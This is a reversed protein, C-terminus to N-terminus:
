RLLRTQGEDQVWIFAKKQLESVSITEMKVKIHEIHTSVTSPRIKLIKAIERSTKGKGLLSFVSIERRSLLDEPATSGTDPPVQTYLLRESISPALYLIGKAVVRIADILSESTDSKPLFGKAGLEMSRRVISINESASLILVRINELQARHTELFELGSWRSDMSIDLILLDPSLEELLHDLDSLSGTEGVIELTEEGQIQLRIGKRILEHDDALVIRTM